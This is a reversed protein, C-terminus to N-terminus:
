IIPYQHFLLLFIGEGTRRSRSYVNQKTKAGSAVRAELTVLVQVEYIQKRAVVVITGWSVVILAYHNLIVASQEILLDTLWM